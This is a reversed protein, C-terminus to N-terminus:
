EGAHQVSVSDLRVLDMRASVEPIGHIAITVSSTPAHITIVGARHHIDLAFFFILIILVIILTNHHIYLKM